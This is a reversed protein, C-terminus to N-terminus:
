YRPAQRARLSQASHRINRYAMPRKSFEHLCVLLCDDNSGDDNILSKSRDPFEIEEKPITLSLHMREYWQLLEIHHHDARFLRLVIPKSDHGPMAFPTLQAFEGESHRVPTTRSPAGNLLDVYYTSLDHSHLRMRCQVLDLTSDDLM